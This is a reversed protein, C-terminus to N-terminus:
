VVDEFKMDELEHPRLYPFLMVLMALAMEDHGYHWLRGCLAILISLPMPHRSGAPSLKRYGNLARSARHLGSSTVEPVYHQVAAKTKEAEGVLMGNHYLNEFYEALIRDILKLGIKRV